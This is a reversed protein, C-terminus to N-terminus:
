TPNAPNRKAGDDDSFVTVAHAPDGRSATGMAGAVPAATADLLHGTVFSEATAPLAAHLVLLLSGLLLAARM